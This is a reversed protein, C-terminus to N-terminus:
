RTCMRPGDDICATCTSSCRTVPQRISSTACIMNESSAQGGSTSRHTVDVVFVGTRNQLRQLAQREKAALRHGFRELRAQRRQAVAAKVEVVPFLADAARGALLDAVIRGDRMTLTGPDARLGAALAYAVQARRDVVTAAAPACQTDVQARGARDAQRALVHVGTGVLLQRAVEHQGIRVAHM